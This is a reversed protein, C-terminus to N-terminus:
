KAIVRNNQATIPGFVHRCTQHVCRDGFFRFRSGRGSGARDFDSSTKVELGMSKAAKGLDGGMEKTKALLDSAKRTLTVEVGQSQLTKRIEPQAEEFSSPHAPVVNMVDVIVVKGGTAVPSSVEFKNLGTVVQDVERSVGILPLPDGPTYNDARQLTQGVEAAAKEPHAPDKRLVVDAKEGLKVMFDNM